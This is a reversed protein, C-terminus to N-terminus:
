TYVINVETWTAKKVCSFWLYKHVPCLMGGKKCGVGGKIKKKIEM